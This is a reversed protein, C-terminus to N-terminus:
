MSKKKVFDPHKCIKYGIINQAKRTSNFREESSTTTFKNYGWPSFYVLNGQGENDRPTKESEPGNFRHHRFSSQQRALLM